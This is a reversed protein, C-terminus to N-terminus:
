IWDDVVGTDLEWSRVSVLSVREDLVRVTDLEGSGGAVLVSYTNM